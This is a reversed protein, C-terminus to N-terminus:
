FYFGVSPAVYFFVYPRGDTDRTLDEQPATPSDWFGMQVGGMLNVILRASPIMFQYGSGLGFAYPKSESVRRTLSGQDPLDRLTLLTFPRTTADAYLLNGHAANAQLYWGSPAPQLPYYRGFVEVLYGADYYSQDLLRLNNRDADTPGWKAHGAVGLTFSGSLAVEVELGVTNWFLAPLLKVNVPSAIADARRVGADEQPPASPAVKAADPPVVGQPVAAGAALWMFCLLVWRQLM